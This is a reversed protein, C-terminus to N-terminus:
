ALVAAVWDQSPYLEDISFHSVPVEFPVSEYGNKQSLHYACRLEEVEGVCEFPKMVGDVGLLGKFMEVLSEDAYLKGGLRAQLESAGVFPSFLLYSNACKPCKGCWVLTTNNAGQQYNAINCSSFQEGFRQWAHKSFLATVKLESYQRLPSGAQIDPSIYRRVYEAFLQEAQWTKSWQHNVPLDGIWEHPEEGEHAIAALVTNKGLLIAQILAYSLAIYTVPVHGNKGGDQTAQRLGERDLMRWAKTLPHALTDLIAPHSDAASIYFPTYDIANEELLAAVLLSDKGGSQMALVGQGTYAVPHSSDDRSAVFQALDQRTLDNEFAFQSLGEQYVHNLFGAQWEDVGGSVEVDSTPFTKFYSTGVLLHALRLARDLAARDYDTGAGSFEIREVFQRGDEGFRYRFEAVYNDDSFSYGDFVFKSM